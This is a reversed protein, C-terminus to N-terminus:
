QWALLGPLYYKLPRFEGFAKLSLSKFDPQPLLPQPPTHDAPPTEQSQETILSDPTLM